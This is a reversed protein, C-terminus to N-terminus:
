WRWVHVLHGAEAWEPNSCDRAQCVQDRHYLADRDREERTFAIGEEGDLRCYWKWEELRGELIVPSIEDM